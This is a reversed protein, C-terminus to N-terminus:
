HPSRNLFCLTNPQVGGQIPAVTTQFQFCLQRLTSFDTTAGATLYIGETGCGAASGAPDEQMM